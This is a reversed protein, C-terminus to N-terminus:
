IGLIKIIFISNEYYNSLLDNNIYQNDINIITYKNYFYMM